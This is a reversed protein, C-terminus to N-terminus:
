TRPFSNTTTPGSIPPASSSIGAYNFAITSTNGGEAAAINTSSVFTNFTIPGARVGGPSAMTALCIASLGFLVLAQRRSLSPCIM